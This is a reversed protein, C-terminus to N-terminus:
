KNSVKQVFLIFEIGFTFPIIKNLKIMLSQM